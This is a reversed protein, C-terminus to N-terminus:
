FASDRMHGTARCAGMNRVYAGHKAGIPALHPSM